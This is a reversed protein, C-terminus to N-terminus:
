AKCSAERAKELAEINERVLSIIGTRIPKGVIRRAKHDKVAKEIEEHLTDADVPKTLLPANQLRAIDEFVPLRGYATLYIFPLAPYTQRITM